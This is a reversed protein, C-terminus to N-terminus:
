FNSKVSFRSIKQFSFLAAIRKASGSSRATRARASGCQYRAAHEEEAARAAAVSSAPLNHLPVGSSRFANEGRSRGASLAQAASWVPSGAVM